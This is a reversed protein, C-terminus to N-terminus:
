HTSFPAIKSGDTYRSLRFPTMDVRAKGDLLLESMLLGAAPGMGFGHGSFGSALFYGEPADVACMVPIEDPTAEIIGAWSEEVQLGALQPFLRGLSTMAGRLVRRDPDPDLVRDAEFGTAQDGTWRSPAMLEKVFTSSLRLRLSKRQMLFSPWFARGYRLLDPVLDFTVAGGQAVTYGGDQRRRFGVADSWVGSQTLLPGPTTRLASARVKLQPLDVGLNRSFRSTWVGAACVVARCAIPGRETAVGSVKGGSTEVTRVACNTLVRAGLREAARAIAPAAKAPEARGDSPTFLAGKWRGESQSLHADTEAPSLMRSDLQYSRAHELWAEYDALQKDSEALYLTGGQHWGLDEGLEAELGQWIKLSEIIAPIELPDRGQKRVWGWNRSSQEGAIRGKEVLAVPVGRKALFYATACGVIGGGIVVVEVAEPLERQETM